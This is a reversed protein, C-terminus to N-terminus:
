VAVYMTNGKRNVLLITEEKKSSGVAREFESINKVAKRNVEQIVDGRRLGAEAAESSPSVNTVVVGQASAPLGLQHATDSDLTEVAVGSLASKKDDKDKSVAARETPLETLRVAVDRQSGNRSVHLTVTSDPQSMSIALRLGNADAIPKGNVELIIDGKELGGKLAPSNASV